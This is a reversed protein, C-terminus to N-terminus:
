GFGVLPFLCRSSMLQFIRSGAVWNECVKSPHSKECHRGDPCAGEGLRSFLQCVSSPHSFQCSEGRSCYGREFYSCKKSKRKKKLDIDAKSNSAKPENTKVEKDVEMPEPAKASLEALNKNQLMTRSNLTELQANRNLTDTLKLQLERNSTTLNSFNSQLDDIQKKSKAPIQKSTRLESIRKNMSKKEEQLKSIENKMKEFRKNFHKLCSDKETLLEELGNKECLITEITEDKKAVLKFKEEGDSKLLAIEYTTNYIDRHQTEITEDRKIIETQLETIMKKIDHTEEKVVADVLLNQLEEEAFESLSFPLM